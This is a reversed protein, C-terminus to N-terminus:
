TLRFGNMMADEPRGKLIMVPCSVFPSRNNVSRGDKAGEPTSQLAGGAFITQVLYPLKLRRGAGPSASIGRLKPAPGPNKETLIRMLLVQFKPVI